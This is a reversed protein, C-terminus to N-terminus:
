RPLCMSSETLSNWLEKAGDICDEERWGPYVAFGYHKRKGQTQVWFEITCRYRNKPIVDTLSAEFSYKAKKDASRYQLKGNGVTITGNSWGGDVPLTIANSGIPTCSSAGVAGVSSTSVPHSAPDLTVSVDLTKGAAVDITQENDRYGDASVRVKHSGPALTSVKLQGEGSTRVILQDDVFVQAGGPTTTVVLIPPKPALQKLTSLLADDAGASHLENEAEPTIQFDIGRQRVLEEVRRTSVTGRLLMLVDDKSLPKPSPQTQAWTAALLSLFLLALVVHNRTVLRQSIECTPTSNM